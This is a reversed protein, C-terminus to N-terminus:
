PCALRETLWTYRPGREAPAQRRREGLHKNRDRKQLNRERKVYIYSWMEDLEIRAPSVGRVLRDHLAMCAEGMRALQARVTNPACGTIDVIDNIGNNRCILKLILLRTERPLTNM